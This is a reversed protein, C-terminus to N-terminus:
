VSTNDALETVVPIVILIIIICSGNERFKLRFNLLVVSEKDEVSTIPGEREM